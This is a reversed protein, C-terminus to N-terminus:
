RLHLLYQHMNEDLGAHLKNLKHIYYEKFEKWDYYPYNNTEVPLQVERENLLVKVLYNDQNSYLIWQINASLPIIKSPKWYKNYIFISSSPISAERIGLLTAFPSITEAHAFRLKADILDPHQIYYDTSKIFDVLLPAAIRIQIGLTDNAPGKELFDEAGDTFTLWQLDVPKLFTTFDVGLPFEANKIEQQVSYQISYIGYLDDVFHVLNYNVKHGKSDTISFEDNDLKNLFDSKFFKTGLRNLVTKMRPDNYLSDMKQKLIKGKKYRRYADSIDYFRLEDNLSDPPAIEHIKEHPYSELGKLFAHESQQTRKKQTIVTKIGNGKFVGPYRKYMRRGIGEQEKEGLITIDGYNGNEIKLFHHLMVQLQYGKSTLESQEKAISLIRQIYVIDKKSTLFRAGHRGVYNIFVPKYGPPPPSETKVPSEYPTKTGPPPIPNIIVPRETQFKPQQEQSIIPNSCFFVLFFLIVSTQLSLLIHKMFYKM